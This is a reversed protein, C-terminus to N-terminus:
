RGIRQKLARLDDFRKSVEATKDRGEGITYEYDLLNGQVELDPGDAVSIAWRDRLPAILAKKIWSYPRNPLLMPAQRFHNACIPALAAVVAAETRTKATREASINTVWGGWSFGFKGVLIFCRLSLISPLNHSSTDHM